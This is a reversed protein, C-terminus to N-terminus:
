LLAQRWFYNETRVIKERLVTNIGMLSSMTGSFALKTGRLSNMLGSFALKAGRFSNMTGSLCTQNGSPYKDNGLTTAFISYHSESFLDNTAMHPVHLIELQQAASCSDSLPWTWSCFSPLQEPINKHDLNQKSRCFMQFFSLSLASSM